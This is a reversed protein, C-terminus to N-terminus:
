SVFPKKAVKKQPIPIHLDLAQHYAWGRKYEMFDAIDLLDQYSKAADLARFMVWKKSYHKKKALDSYYELASPASIISPSNSPASNKNDASSYIQEAIDADLDVDETDAVLKTGCYPCVTAAAPIEKRCRLNPCIKMPAVGNGNKKNPDLTWNREDDPYGHQEFNKVCDIIIAVKNKDNPDPRMSRMSQQIHLTLSKTPRALIVAHCNPVDFGEGFLEANCLIKYKGRRFDEVIQEREAKDTSGDCHAASIGAANFHHAVHQSHEVNVCYCIASKGDAHELYSDIIAFTINDDIMLNSLGRIEYDGKDIKLQDLKPKIEIDMKFYDFNTLNGLRILDKVSPALVMDTFVDHLTIGGRREPTATVGLLYSDRWNNIITKYSDALIHHCEDCVLLDPPYILDLRKVLTQVSAIQVPFTYNPKVGGSIIGHPIHLDYFTQSTQEILEKRHVFFIATKGRQMTERIMWGTMITKGAGCPAVGCVRKHENHFLLRIDNIFKRQYPRLAIEGM